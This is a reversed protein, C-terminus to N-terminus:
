NYMYTTQITITANSISPGANYMHNHFEAGYRFINIPILPRDNDASRAYIVCANSVGDPINFVFDYTSGTAITINNFTKSLQACKWATSADQKQDATSQADQAANMAAIVDDRAQADKIDIIDGGIKFKSVEM